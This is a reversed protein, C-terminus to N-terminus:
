RLIHRVVSIVSIVALSFLLLAASPSFDSSVTAKGIVKDDKSVSYEASASRRLRVHTLDSFRNKINSLLDSFSRNTKM